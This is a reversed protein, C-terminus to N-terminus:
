AKRFYFLLIIGLSMLLSGIYKLWRGPDYNISFISAIPEGQADEEFSAQYVLLGNVKLPENMSILHEGQQSISVWSKYESAKQVGQYREVEFKKLDISFNLPVREQAYILRYVAGGNSIKLADNLVIWKEQNLYKVKVASVTMATPHDKEVVEWQSEAHPLYRLIKLKIDMWGLPITDGEQLIGQSFPGKLNKHFVQYQIGKEQAVFVIANRDVLPIPNPALIVKAPGLDQEVIEQLHNQVLWDIHNVRANQLQYRLGAGAMVDVTSLIKTQPVVYNKFDIVEINFSGTPLVMPKSSTPPDSFFDVSKKSLQHFPSGQESSYLSLENKSVIVQQSSKNIEVRMTGDLGWQQTLWSGLLLLLIGIHASVFSAHKKKWPWRSVMVATLNVALVSLTLWMWVTRYILRGAAEADYKSEVVTGIAVLICISLMVSVALKLSSLFKIVKKFNM